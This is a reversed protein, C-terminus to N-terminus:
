MQALLDDAEALDQERHKDEKAELAAQNKYYADADFMQQYKQSIEAQKQAYKKNIEELKEKERTLIDRLKEIQEQNMIPLLNFWNQKEDNEALSKSELVLQILDSHHAFIGESITFNEAVSWLHEPLHHQILTTM